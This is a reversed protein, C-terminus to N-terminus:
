PRAGRRVLAVDVALGALAFAAVVVTGTALSPVAAAPDLARRLAAVAYTLPDAAMALQLWRPAGAAPFVAGSLMWLPVLLLNMVAHFGQVSDVRWAFGFGVAALAVALLALVGLAAGLGAPALPLGAAWALPLLVAGQALALAAGGGVKGAVIAWRPAPSVLVGQLFGQQRDEILSITSFVAAFLVVLVVTGPFFYALYSTTPAAAGAATGPLRFVGSLGSGLVAWFVVPPALAGVIRSPQRLFRVIERWALSAAAALGRGPAAAPGRGAPREHPAASM